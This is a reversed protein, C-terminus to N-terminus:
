LSDILLPISINQSLINYHQKDIGWERFKTERRREKKQKAANNSIVTTISPYSKGNPTSYFRRGEVMKATLEIPKGDRHTFTM